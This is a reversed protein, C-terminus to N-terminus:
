IRRLLVASHDDWPGHRELCDRISATDMGCEATYVWGVGQELRVLHEAAGDTLLLLRELAPCKWRYFRLHQWLDCNMTLYTSNPVLGNMPPSVVSIEEDDRNKQLIFGDGLHFCICRGDEDVAAAVITCALEGPSIGKQAAYRTLAGHVLDAIQIRANQGVSGYLGDFRAALAGALTQATIQAAAAGGRFSGAGDCVVAATVGGGTLIVMRDENEGSCSSHFRGINTYSEQIM